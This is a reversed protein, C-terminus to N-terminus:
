FYICQGPISGLSGAHCALIRGSFQCWHRILFQSTAKYSANHDFKQPSFLFPFPFCFLCFCVFVFLCVYFALYFLTYLYDLLFLALRTLSAKTRHRAILDKSISKESSIWKGRQWDKHFLFFCSIWAYKFPLSFSPLRTPASCQGVKESSFHYCYFFLEFVAPWRSFQFITVM